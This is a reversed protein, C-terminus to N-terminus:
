LNGESIMQKVIMQETKLLTLDHLKKEYDAVLEPNQGTVIKLYMQGCVASQKEIEQEILVIRDRLM